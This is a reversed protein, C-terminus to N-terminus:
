SEGMWISAGYRTSSRICVTYTIGICFVPVTVGIIAIVMVLYDPWKNKHLAAIIGLVLGTGLGIILAIGGVLGSVPSTKIITETVSRGAFVVSEGFDFRLLGKLYNVFQTMLPKDLGYKAYFNLRTQEPLMQAMSALPDGPISRMM